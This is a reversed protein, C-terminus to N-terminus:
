VREVEGDMEVGREGSLSDGYCLRDVMSKVLTRRARGKMPAAKAAGVNPTLDDEEEETDIPPFCLTSIRVTTVSRLAETTLMKRKKPM